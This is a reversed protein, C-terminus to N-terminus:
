AGLMARLNSPYYLNEKECGFDQILSPHTKIKKKSKLMKGAIVDGSDEKKQM